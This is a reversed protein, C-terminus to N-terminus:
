WCDRQVLVGVGSLRHKTRGHKWQEGRVARGGQDGGEVGGGGGGGRGKRGNEQRYTFYSCLELQKSFYDSNSSYIRTDQSTHQKSSCLQNM